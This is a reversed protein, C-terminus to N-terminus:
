PEGFLEPVSSVFEEFHSYWVTHAAGPISRVDVGRSKLRDADEANVFDSPEARVVISGAGPTWDVDAGCSISAATARDFRDAARAEVIADAESYHSRSERLRTADRRRQRDAEYQAILAGRDQGGRFSCSTDVYVALEIPLRAAAAALVTGGYSHGIAFLRQHPALTQVTGIVADAASNVSSEPDRDSLGHGPLDLALVRYGRGVLLPIIRWWSEASGMMGHLLIVIKERVDTGALDDARTDIVNLLTM